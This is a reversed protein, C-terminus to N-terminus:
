GESEVGTVPFVVRVVAGSDSRLEITGRLQRVMGHVLMLGLSSTQQYDFGAPLGQGTDAVTLEIRSGDQQIAIRITGTRPPPFAHKCANSVLENLLMAFPVARELELTVNEDGALELKVRDELNYFRVLDPALKRTYTTLEIQAFSTGRYLQEHISSIALVRNRTEEFLALVREEDIQRAQLNLLSVIVQLNNKVRHHVEKLLAEKEAVSTRLLDAQQKLKEEALRHETVDRMIKVFGQLVGQTDRVATLVGSAFFRTGDKRLHWREDESNGKAKAGEIEEEPAGCAVDEPTFIKHFPQGTMESAGYGLMRQAGVNWTSIVGEPNLQFLAHDQVNEVLLRFREESERLARTAEHRASV